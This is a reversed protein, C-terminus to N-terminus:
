FLTVVLIVAVALKRHWVSRGESVSSEFAVFVGPGLFLGGKYLLIPHSTLAPRSIDPLTVLSSPAESQLM